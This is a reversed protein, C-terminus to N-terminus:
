GCVFERETGRGDARIRERGEPKRERERKQRVKIPANLSAVDPLQDSPTPNRVWIPYDRVISSGFGRTIVVRLKYSLRVAMGRYSEHEMEVTKFEFSFTQQSVLEGAPALERVAVYM